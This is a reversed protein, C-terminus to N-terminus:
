GAWKTLLPIRADDYHSQQIGAETPYALTMYGIVARGPGAEARRIGPRAISEPGGVHTM